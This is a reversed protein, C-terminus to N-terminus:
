VFLKMAKQGLSQTICIFNNKKIQMNCRTDKVNMFIIILFYLQLQVFESSM